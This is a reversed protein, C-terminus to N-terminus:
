IDKEDSISRDKVVETPLWELFVQVAHVKVPKELPLPQFPLHWLKKKKKLLFSYLINIEIEM